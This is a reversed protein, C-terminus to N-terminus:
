DYQAGGLSEELKDLLVQWEEMAHAADKFHRRQMCTKVTDEAFELKTLLERIQEYPRNSLTTNMQKWLRDQRVLNERCLKELEPRMDFGVTYVVNLIDAIEDMKKRLYCLSYTALSTDTQPRELTKIVTQIAQRMDAVNQHIARFCAPLDAVLNGLAIDDHKLTTLIDDMERNVQERKENAKVANAVTTAITAGIVTSAVAAITTRSMTTVSRM